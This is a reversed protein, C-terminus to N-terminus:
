TAPALLVNDLLRTRGFCVAIALLGEEALLTLPRLDAASRLEIYDVTGLTAQELRRRVAERLVEDRREGSAALAAADALAARLLPAQARQEPSLYVNRSSMALGDPERVIPCVVVDAGLDLDAALRRIVVAQQADKQGVYVRDPRCLALLKTVVTAVGRFHGPRVAGEMPDSLGEVEVWTAHREGYMEQVEPHFVLDVGVEAALALDRDLERPYRDLDEQPGFQTPNVFISMVLLDNEQRARRALSLHGEHLYGMTPVLGLSEGKGRARALAGRVEAKTALLVPPSTM